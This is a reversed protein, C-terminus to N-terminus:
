KKCCVIKNEMKGMSVDLRKGDVYVNIQPCNLLEMIKAAQEPTIVGFRLIELFFLKMEKSLKIPEQM